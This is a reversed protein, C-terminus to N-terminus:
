FWAVGGVRLQERSIRRRTCMSCSTPFAVDSIVHKKIPIHYREPPPLFRVLRLQKPLWERKTTNTRAMLSHAESGLNKPAEWIHPNGGGMLGAIAPTERKTGIDLRPCGRNKDVM